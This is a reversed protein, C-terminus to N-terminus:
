TLPATAPLPPAASIRPMGDDVRRLRMFFNPILYGAREQYFGTTNASDFAFARYSWRSSNHKGTARSPHTTIESSYDVRVARQSM